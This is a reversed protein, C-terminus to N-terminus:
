GEYLRTAMEIIRDSLALYEIWKSPINELGYYAGAIQGCVAGTTDADNGLNVAKLIADRFSNSDHFCWLASELSEIVYGSGTLENYDKSQYKGKAIDLVKRETPSYGSELLIEDKSAGSLAKHLQAGFLRCSEICEASAHTTKSSEGSYHIAEQIDSRYFMPIPALRMISGNGSSMPDVSGAFPNGDDQYRHLASAITAGIDFCTGNSSMYGYNAWNCYRNMQDEPDFQQQHVLSTGLCLAMSTDDTWEGINLNFPGGGVMDTLPEFSGKPKFEITTGVADGCALGLLCGKYRDLIEM